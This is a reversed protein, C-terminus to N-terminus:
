KELMLLTYWAYKKLVPFKKLLLTDWKYLLNTEPHLTDFQSYPTHVKIRMTGEPARNLHDNRDDIFIDQRVFYKEKTALYGSM